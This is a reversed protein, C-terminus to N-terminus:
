FKSINLLRLIDRGKIRTLVVLIRLGLSAECAGLILLYFRTSIPQGKNIFILFMLIFIRLLVLELRLLTIILQKRHYFARIISFLFIFITIGTLTLKM